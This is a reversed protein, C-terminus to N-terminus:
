AAPPGEPQKCWSLANCLFCHCHFRKAESIKTKKHKHALLNHAQPKFTVFANLPKKRVLKNNTQKKWHGSTVVAVQPMIPENEIQFTAMKSKPM